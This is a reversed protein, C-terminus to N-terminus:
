ASTMAIRWGKPTRVFLRESLGRNGRLLLTHGDDAILHLSAIEHGTVHTLANVSKQLVENLNLSRSVAATVTRLIQLHRILSEAGATSSQGSRLM